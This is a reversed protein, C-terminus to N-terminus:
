GAAREQPAPERPEIGSDVLMKRIMLDRGDHKLSCSNPWNIDFSRSGLRRVGPRRAFTVKIGVQTVAMQSLPIAKAVKDLLDFVAHKNYSPDAELVLRENKGHVKLRLKRVAVDAIGSEPAYVFQFQRSRVRNLDYVREDKEDPGLEAKLIANAFIAQLDPVPKRDGTLYIDLTGENQSYVFIIEFAPHHPRRKFEKGVWEVSAQAYDEPYAFFYDLDGRRYCDVKCNEGRGQIKHFYNSLSQELQRVSAPDVSAPKRPVNKRKRWYSFPVADAHHFALAGPWYKARELLTWFAHEHFGTLKAFQEALDEGHWRAEDLIAKSGGETALEDIDQFDQEMENRADEPLKLWAEYIPEVQTQTLAKFDVDALVNRASFYRHLLRNPAQRFFRRPQYERAM